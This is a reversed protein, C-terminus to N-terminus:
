EFGRAEGCIPMRHGTERAALGGTMLRAKWLFPDEYGKVQQVINDIPAWGILPERELRQLSRIGTNM